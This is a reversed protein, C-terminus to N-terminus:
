TRAYLFIERVTTRIKEEDWDPHLAHLGAAKLEQASYHLRLAVKLKQEPTMSKFIIKQIPHM